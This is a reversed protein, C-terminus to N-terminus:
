GRTRLQEPTRGSIAVCDRSLHAQDYYGSVAALAALSGSRPGGALLDTFRGLRCVREFFKPGYGVAATFRRRHQRPSLGVDPIRHGARLMAATHVVVPDSNWGQPIHSTLGIALAAAVDRPTNANTLRDELQRVVATTWVADVPVRVDTFRDVAGEFAAVAVGPRLRVGVVLSGEPLSSRYPATDPGALWPTRHPTWMLDVAGDPTVTGAGSATLSWWGEVYQHAQGPTRGDLAPGIM